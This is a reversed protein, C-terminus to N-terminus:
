SWPSGGHRRHSRAALDEGLVLWTLKCWGPPDRRRLAFPDGWAVFHVLVVFCAVSPQEHPHTPFGGLIIHSSKRFYIICKSGSCRNWHHIDISGICLCMFTLEDEVLPYMPAVYKWSNPGLHKESMDEALPYMPAFYNWAKRGQNKLM